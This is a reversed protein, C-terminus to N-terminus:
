DTNSTNAEDSLHYGSLILDLIMQYYYENREIQKKRVSPISSLLSLSVKWVGTLRVWFLQYWTYQSFFTIQRYLNNFFKYIINIM